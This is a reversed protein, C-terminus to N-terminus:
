PTVIPKNIEYIEDSNEITYGRIVKGKDDTKINGNEDKLPCYGGNTNDKRKFKKMGSVSFSQNNFLKYEQRRREDLDPHSKHTTNVFDDETILENKAMKKTIADCNGHNYALSVLADFEQQTVRRNVGNRALSSKVRNSYEGKAKDEFSDVAEEESTFESDKNKGTFEGIGVTWNGKGCGGDQYARIKGDPCIFGIAEHSKLFNLGDQSPVLDANLLKRVNIEDKKICPICPDAVKKNGFVNQRETPLTNNIYNRADKLKQKDEPLLDKEKKKNYFAVVKRQDLEQQSLVRKKEIGDLLNQKAQKISINEDSIKLIENREKDLSQIDSELKKIRPTNYNTSM